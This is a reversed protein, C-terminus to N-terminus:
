LLSRLQLATTALPSKLIQQQAVQPVFRDLQVHLVLLLMLELLPQNAHLQLTNEQQLLALTLM